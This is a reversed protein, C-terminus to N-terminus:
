CCLLGTAFGHQPDQAAHHHAAVGFVPDVHAPPHEDHDGEGSFEDSVLDDVHQQEQEAQTEILYSWWTTM